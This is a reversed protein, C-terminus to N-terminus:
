PLLSKPDDSPRLIQMPPLISSRLSCLHCFVPSPAERELAPPVRMPRGVTAPHQRLQLPLVVVVGAVSYLLVFLNSYLLKFVFAPAQDSLAPAPVYGVDGSSARKPVKASVSSRSESTQSCSPHQRIQLKLIAVVATAATSVLPEKSMAPLGVSDPTSQCM